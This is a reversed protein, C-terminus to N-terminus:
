KTKNTEKTSVDLLLIKLNIEKSGICFITKGEFTKFTFNSLRFIFYFLTRERTKLLSRKFKAPLPNLDDALFFILKQGGTRVMKFYFNFEKLLLSGTSSCFSEFVIGCCVGSEVSMCVVFLSM